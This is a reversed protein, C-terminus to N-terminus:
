MSVVGNAGVVTTDEKETYDRFTLSIRPETIELDKVIEHSWYKNTIGDIIYLSGSKLPIDYQKDYRAFRFIRTAGLSLGVINENIGIEKDRHAGIGIKGNPYCQIACATINLGTLKKVKENLPILEPVASWDIADRVTSYNKTNVRYTVNPDGYLKSSRVSSSWNLKFLTDYLEKNENETLFNPIYKVNLFKDSLQYTQTQLSFSLNPNLKIDALQESLKIEYNSM